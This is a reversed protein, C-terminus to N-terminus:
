SVLPTSSVHHPQALVVNHIDFDFDDRCADVNREQLDYKQLCFLVVYAVCNIEGCTANYYVSLSVGLFKLRFSVEEFKVYTKGNHCM